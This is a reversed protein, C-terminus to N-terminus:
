GKRLENFISRLFGNLKAKPVPGSLRRIRRGSEKHTVEVRPQAGRAVCVYLDAKGDVSWCREHGDHEPLPIFRNARSPLRGLASDFDSVSRYRKEPDLNLGKEIVRLLGASVHPALSRVRPRDGRRIAADLDQQLAQDFPWRGTLMVYLSVAAGYVDAEVGQRSTRYTEPARIRPDGGVDASGDKDMLSAVGFDGLVVDGNDRRFINAPKVDRHLLGRAHCVALGRLARRTAEVALHPEMGRPVSTKDLSTEALSTDLYAIGDAIDANNVTLIYPSALQTLLSAEVWADRHPGRVFLKLAIEHSRHCDWARWVEGFAGSGIPKRLEYRNGFVAGERIEM